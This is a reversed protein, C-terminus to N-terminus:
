GFAIEAIQEFDFDLSEAEERESELVDLQDLQGAEIGRGCHSRYPCFRCRAVEDTKVFGAEDMGAIRTILARLDDADQRYQAAEYRLIVPDQAHESFWYVMTVQEPQFRQGDNLAAGAQVLVYRYVRTQWRQRLRHESTRREATKWDFITAQRLGTPGPPAILLADYKALLRYGGLPAGLEMEVYRQGPLDVPRERLYAEWWRLLDPDQITRTLREEPLGLLYQQVLRHFAQGMELRHEYASIPEATVAPWSAEAIYRLYFRRPCDAFDQLSAQSFQFDERLRM